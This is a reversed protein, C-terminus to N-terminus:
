SINTTKVEGGRLKKWEVMREKKKMKLFILIINKCKVVM